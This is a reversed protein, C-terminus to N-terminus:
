QNEVTRIFYSALVANLLIALVLSIYNLNALKNETIKFKM